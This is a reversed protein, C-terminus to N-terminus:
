HPIIMVFHSSYSHLWSSCSCTNSFVLCALLCFNDGQCWLMFSLPTTFSFLVLKKSKLFFALGQTTFYTNRSHHSQLWHLRLIACCFPWGAGKGTQFGQELSNVSEQWNGCQKVHIFEPHMPAHFPRKM